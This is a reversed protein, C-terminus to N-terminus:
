RGGGMLLALKVEDYYSFKIGNRKMAILVGCFLVVICVGYVMNMDFLNNMIIM